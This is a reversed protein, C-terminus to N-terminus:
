SLKKGDFGVESELQDDLLKITEAIQLNELVNWVMEDTIEKNGM